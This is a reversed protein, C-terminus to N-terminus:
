LPSRRLAEVPHYRSMKWAPYVGSLVGFVLTAIFGYFFVWGNFRLQGYPIFDLAAFGRLFLLSLALGIFGGLFTLIINEVLFQGVLDWSSAGYAKRVGIESSREMIRSLNINVLNLAPLLMFLLVLGLIRVMLQSSPFLDTAFYNASLQRSVRGTIQESMSEFFTRIDGEATEYDNYRPYDYRSVRTRYEERILPIVERSGALVIGYFSGLAGDNLYANTKATTVPVWVEAFPITRYSPVDEVVGVVRFDQGDITVTEGVANGRGFVKRRVTENIVAVFNANREDDPTYPGGELFTFDLITWFDGETQKRELKFMRGRYVGEVTQIGSFISAREIHPLTKFNIYETLFQYGPKSMSMMNGGDRTFTLNSTWLIRDGRSEPPITGLMNEFYAAFVILIMLTLSIGALSIFTFFKRRLLVKYATLLYNKLM